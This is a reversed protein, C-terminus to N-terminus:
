LVCALAAAVLLAVGTWAVLLAIAVARLPRRVPVASREM